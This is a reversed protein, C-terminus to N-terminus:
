RFAEKESLLHGDDDIYDLKINPKYSDKERFEVTPGSYRDRRSLKDDDGRFNSANVIIFSILLNYILEYNKNDEIVYINSRMFPLGIFRNIYKIALSKCFHKIKLLIIKQKYIHLDQLLHDPM